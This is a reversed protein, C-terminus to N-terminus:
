NLSTALWAALPTVVVVAAITGAVIRRRRLLVTRRASRATNAQMPGTLTISAAPAAVADPEREPETQTATGHQEATQREAGPTDVVPTDVISLRPPTTAGGHLGVQPTRGAALDRLWTAAAEATPRAAADVETMARLIAVWEAGLYTPVQPTNGDAPVGTLCKLLVAALALVDDAEVAGVDAPGDILGDLRALPAMALMADRHTTTSRDPIVITASDIRGHVIDRAHLYDLAGAVDAGIAAIRPRDIGSVLLEDRLTRGSVPDLVLAIVTPTDVVVARLGVIAPHRLGELPRVRAVTTRMAEASTDGTSITDFVEVTVPRALVTDTAAYCVSVGGRSVVRDLSYRGDLLQPQIASRSDARTAM